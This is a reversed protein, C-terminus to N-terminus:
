RAPSFKGLFGAHHNRLTGIVKTDKKQIEEYLADSVIGQMPISARSFEESDGLAEYRRVETALKEKDIAYTYGDPRQGFGREYETWEVYYVIKAGSIDM